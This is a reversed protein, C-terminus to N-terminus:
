RAARSAGCNSEAQEDAAAIHVALAAVTLGDASVPSPRTWKVGAL